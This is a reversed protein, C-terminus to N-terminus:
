MKKFCYHLAHTEIEKIKGKMEWSRMAMSVNVHIDTQRRMKKGGQKSKCKRWGRATCKRQARRETVKGKGGRMKTDKRKKKKGLHIDHYQGPHNDDGDGCRLSPGNHQGHAGTRCFLGILLHPVCWLSAGNTRKKLIIWGPWLGQLLHAAALPRWVFLLQLIKYQIQWKLVSLRM